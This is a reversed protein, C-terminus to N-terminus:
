RDRRGGDGTQAPKDRDVQKGGPRQASPKQQASKQQASKKNKTVLEAYVVVNGTYLQTQANFSGGCTLLHLSPRGSTRYVKETPFDNRDYLVKKRVTFVLSRGRERRIVIRDHLRMSALGYFVAPGDLSDVHGVMVAAGQEGPAPGGSWWGVDWFDEPVQLTNGNVALETLGQSIGLRPITIRDPKPASPTVTPATILVPDNRLRREDAPRKRDRNDAKRQNLKKARALARAEARRRDAREAARGDARESSSPSDAGGVRSEAAVARGAPEDSTLATAAWAILVGALCLLLVAVTISDTRRPASLQRGGSSPHDDLM